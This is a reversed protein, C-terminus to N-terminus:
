KDRVSVCTLNLFKTTKQAGLSFNKVDPGSNNAKKKVKEM